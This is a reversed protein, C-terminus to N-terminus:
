PERSEYRNNRLILYSPNVTKYGPGYYFPLDRERERERDIKRKRKSARESERKRERDRERERVGERV